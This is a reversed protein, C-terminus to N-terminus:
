WRRPEVSCRFRCVTAGFPPVGHGRQDDDRQPQNEREGDQTPGKGTAEQREHDIGDVHREHIRDRPEEPLRGLETGQVRLEVLVEVRVVERELHDHGPPPLFHHRSAGGVEEERPPDEAHDEELDRDVSRQEHDERVQELVEEQVDEHDPAPERPEHRLGDALRDEHVEDEEHRLLDLLVHEVPLLEV